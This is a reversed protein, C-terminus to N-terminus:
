RCSKVINKLKEVANKFTLYLTSRKMIGASELESITYGQFFLRLLSLEQNEFKECYLEVTRKLEEIREKMLAEENDEHLFETVAIREENEEDLMFLGKFSKAKANYSNNMLYDMIEQTTTEKWFSYFSCLQPNFKKVVYHFHDTCVTMIENFNIGTGPYKELIENSLKKSYNHYRKLLSLYAEHNGQACLIHLHEDLIRNYSQNTPM